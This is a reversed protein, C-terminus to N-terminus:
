GLDKFEADRVSTRDLQPSNKSRTRDMKAAREARREAEREAFGRKFPATVRRIALYILLAILALEFLRAM